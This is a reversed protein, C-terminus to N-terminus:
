GSVRGRVIRNGNQLVWENGYVKLTALLRGNRPDNWSITGDSHQNM